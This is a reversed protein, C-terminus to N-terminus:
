GWTWGSSRTSRPHLPCRRPPASPRQRRPPRRRELVAWSVGAVTLGMGALALGSLTEGLVRWGILASLPPALAMLVSSLRLGLFLYSRFLCFDRFTFGLFGSLSLILWARSSADLPPAV